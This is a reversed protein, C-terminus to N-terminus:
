DLRFHDPRPIPDHDTEPTPADPKDSLAKDRFHGVVASLAFMVGFGILIFIPIVEDWIGFVGHALPVFTSM